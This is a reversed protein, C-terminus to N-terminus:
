TLSLAAVRVVTDPKGALRTELLEHASAPGPTASQWTNFVPASMGRTGIETHGKGRDHPFVCILGNLIAGVHIVRTLYQRAMDM